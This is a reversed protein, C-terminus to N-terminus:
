SRDHDPVAASPHRIVNQSVTDTHRLRDRNPQVVLCELCQPRQLRRPHRARVGDPRSQQRRGPPETTALLQRVLHCREFSVVLVALLHELNGAEHFRKTSRPSTYRKRRGFPTPWSCCPSRKPTTTWASSNRGRETTITAGVEPLARAADNRGSISM